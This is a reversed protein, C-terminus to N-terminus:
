NIPSIKFSLLLVNSNSITSSKDLQIGLNEGEREYNRGEPCITSLCTVFPKGPKWGLEPLTKDYFNIIKQTEEESYNDKYFSAYLIRGGASDFSVSDDDKSKLGSYLPIDETGPVFQTKSSLNPLAKFPNNNMGGEECAIIFFLVSLIYLIKM